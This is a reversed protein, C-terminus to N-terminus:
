VNLYIKIKLNLIKIKVKLFIYILKIKKNFEKLQSMLEDVSGSGM